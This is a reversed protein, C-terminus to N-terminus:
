KDDAFRGYYMSMVMCVTEVIDKNLKGTHKAEAIIDAAMEALDELAKDLKDTMSNVETYDYKPMFFARYFVLVVWTKGYKFGVFFRRSGKM